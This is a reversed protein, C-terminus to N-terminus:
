KITVVNDLNNIMCIKKILKNTNTLVLRGGNDDMFRFLTIIFEMLENNIFPVQSLDLQLKDLENAKLNEKIFDINEEIKLFFTRPKIRIIASSSSTTEIFEERLPQFVTRNDEAFINEDLVDYWYPRYRDWLEFRIQRWEQLRFALQQGAMGPLFIDKLNAIYKGTTLDEEPRKRHSEIYFKENNINLRGIDANKVLIGYLSFFNDELTFGGRLSVREYKLDLIRNLVDIMLQLEQSRSGDLPIILQLEDGEALSDFLRLVLSERAPMIGRNEHLKQQLEKRKNIINNEVRERKSDEKIKDLYNVEREAWKV